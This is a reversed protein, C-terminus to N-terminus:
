FAIGNSSRFSEPFFGLRSLPTPPHPPPLPLSSLLLPFVYDFTIFHPKCSRRRPVKPEWLISDFNFLSSLVIKFYSGLWTLLDKEARFSAMPPPVKVFASSCSSLEKLPVQPLFSATELIGQRFTFTERRDNKTKQIGPFLSFSFFISVCAAFRSFCNAPPLWQYVLASRIRNAISWTRRRRELALLEPLFM